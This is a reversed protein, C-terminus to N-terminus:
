RECGAHVLRQIPTDKLQRREPFPALVAALLCGAFYTIQIQVILDFYIVSVGPADLDQGHNGTALGLHQRELSQGQVQTLDMMRM